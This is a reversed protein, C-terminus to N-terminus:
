ESQITSYLMIKLEQIFHTIKPKAYLWKFIYNKFLKYQLIDMNLMGVFENKTHLTSNKNVKGYLHWM